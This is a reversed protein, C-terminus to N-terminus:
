VNFSSLLSLDGGGILGKSAAAMIFSKIHTDANVRFSFIYTLLETM